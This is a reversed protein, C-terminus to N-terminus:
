RLPPAPEEPAIHFEVAAALVPESLVVALREPRRKGPLDEDITTAV